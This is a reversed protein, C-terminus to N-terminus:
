VTDKEKIRVIQYKYLMTRIGVPNEYNTLGEFVEDDNLFEGPEFSPDPPNDILAYLEQISAGLDEPQM